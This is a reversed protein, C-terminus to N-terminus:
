GQEDSQNNTPVFGQEKAADWIFQAEKMDELKADHAVIPRTMLNVFRQVLARLKANESTREDRAADDRLAAAYAERQVQHTYHDMPYAKEARAEPTNHESM